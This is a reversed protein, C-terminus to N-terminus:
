KPPFFTIPCALKQFVHGPNVDNGLMKPEKGLHYRAISCLLLDILQLGNVNEKKEVLKLSSAAKLRTADVFRTGIQCYRDYEAKLLADLEDGRKEAFIANMDDGHRIIRNLLNEFAFLYPDEPYAYSCVHRIKNLCCAVVQFSHPRLLDSSVAEYFQQRTTPDDMIKNRPDSKRHSPRKLESSHLIFNDSDGFFHSKLDRMKANLRQYEDETIILAGLVFIPYSPDIKILNHDGTEDIFALM